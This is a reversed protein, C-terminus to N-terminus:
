RIKWAFNNARLPVEVVERDPRAVIDRVSEARAVEDPLGALATVPTLLWDGSLRAVM